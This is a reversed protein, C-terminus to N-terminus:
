DELANSMFTSKLLLWVFFFALAWKLYIEYYDKVDKYRTEKIEAKEYTNIRSFINSLANTNSARFFKGDGLDAIKRLTTENLTNEVYQVNGFIDKGYPVKGDKGVGITYIKINFARALQAATIPDINGATNEGDSILIMVKSKSTSERMRNIGVSIASGIATGPKTIMNQKIEAIYDYLLQYDTTLPCLSFAEGSFIVMGIRDNLRGQIFKKAVRKAAELRNPVFDELLMSESIDLVLMIDIGESWQEAMENTKQPRALTFTVFMIFMIMFFRPILRLLSTWDGKVNKEPFAFELKQRFRFHFLWRLFFLLPVAPIGYLFIPNEYDFSMLTEPKFWKLDVWDWNEKQFDIM